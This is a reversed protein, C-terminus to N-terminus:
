AFRDIRPADAEIQCLHCCCAHQAIVGKHLRCAVGFHRWIMVRGIDQIATLGALALAIIHDKRQATGRDVAAGSSVHELRAAIAVGTIAVLIVIGGQGTVCHVKDKAALPIVKQIAARSAVDQVGVVIIAAQFAPIDTAM